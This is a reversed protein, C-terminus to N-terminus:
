RCSWCPMGVPPPRTGLATEEEIKRKRKKKKRERTYGLDKGQGIFPFASRGMLPIRKKVM